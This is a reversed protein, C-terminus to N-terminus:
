ASVGTKITRALAEFPNEDDAYYDRNEWNRDDVDDRVFKVYDDVSRGALDFREVLKGNQVVFITEDFTFITEDFTCYVHSAGDTDEGLTIYDLRVGRRNRAIGEISNPNSNKM